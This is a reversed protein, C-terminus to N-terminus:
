ATEGMLRKLSRVSVELEEAAWVETIEGRQLRPLVKALKRNFGKRQTLRPRGVHIGKSRAHEMGAMVRDRIMELEFEALAALINLFLRGQATQTDFQETLSRFSVGAAEWAGLADHMHKVSRFARDLKFVFVAQFKRSAADDLLQRWSERHYLDRAPAQDVYEKAIRWGQAKCYSRLAALQVEPDQDRDATSVRAYLAVKM